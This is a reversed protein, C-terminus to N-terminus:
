NSPVNDFKSATTWDDFYDSGPPHDAIFKKVRERFEPNSEWNAVMFDANCHTVKFNFNFQKEDDDCTHTIKVTNVDFTTFYATFCCRRSGNRVFNSFGILTYPNSIEGDYGLKNILAGQKQLYGTISDKLDGSPQGNVNFAIRIIENVAEPGIVSDSYAVTNKSYSSCFLAVLANYGQEWAAPSVLKKPDNNAKKMVAAVLINSLSELVATLDTDDAALRAGSNTLCILDVMGIENAGHFRIDGAGPQASVSDFYAYADLVAQHHCYGTDGLLMIGSLAEEKM